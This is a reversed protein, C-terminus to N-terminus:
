PSAGLKLGLDLPNIHGLFSWFRGAFRHPPLNPSVITAGLAIRFTAPEFGLVGIAVSPVKFRM